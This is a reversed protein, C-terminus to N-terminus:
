KSAASRTPGNKSEILVANSSLAAGAVNQENSLTMDIEEPNFPNM